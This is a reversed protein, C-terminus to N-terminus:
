DEYHKSVGEITVVGEEISVILRYFGTLKIGYFGELNGVLQHCRLVRLAMLEDLDEIQQIIQIRQIYRTAVEQGLARQGSESDEFWQRLKKTKFKILLRYERNTLIGNVRLTFPM